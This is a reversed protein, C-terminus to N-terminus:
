NYKLMSSTTIIFITLWLDKSLLWHVTYTTCYFPYYAVFWYENSAMLIKNLGYPFGVLLTETEIKTFVSASANAIYLIDTKHGWLGSNLTWM